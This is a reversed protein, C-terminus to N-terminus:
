TNYQTTKPCKPLHFLHKKWPYIHKQFSSVKYPTLFKYNGNQFNGSSPAVVGTIEYGKRSTNPKSSILIWSKELSSKM